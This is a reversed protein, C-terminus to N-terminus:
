DKDKSLDNLIKDIPTDLAKDSNCKKCSVVINGKNSKGGRALPVIHDMTLDKKPFTKKCYYCIGLSLKEQWWSTKRLKRAKEREKKIHDKSVTKYFSEKM